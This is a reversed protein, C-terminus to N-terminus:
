ILGSREEKNSILHELGVTHSYQTLSCTIQQGREYFPLIVPKGRIAETTHLGLIYGLRCYLALAPSTVSTPKDRRWNNKRTVQYLTLDGIILTSM